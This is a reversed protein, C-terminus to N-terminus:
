KLPVFTDSSEISNVVLRMVRLWAVADTAMPENLASFHASAILKEIM